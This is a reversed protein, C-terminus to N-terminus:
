ANAKSFIFDGDDNCDIFITDGAVFESSLLKIALTDTLYKQIARKLPRAGFQPEYGLNAVWELACNSLKLEIGNEKLKKALKFIQLETIKLIESKTLPNFIIFEDIRNLFEPRLSRKLLDIIDLRIDSMISQRNKDDIDNLRSQILETGLNSTMIIITNKFNVLRGKGDTLRKM